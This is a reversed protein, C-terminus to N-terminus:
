NSPFSSKTIILLMDIQDFEWRDDHCSMVNNGMMKLALDVFGGGPQGCCGPLSEPEIYM